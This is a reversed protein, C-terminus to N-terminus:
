RNALNALNASLVAPRGAPTYPAVMTAILALAIWWITTGFYNFRIMDMFNSVTFHDLLLLWLMALLTVSWFGRRPLRQWVALSQLLWLFAPLLYLVLAPIGQEAMLTMYTNHSTREVLNEMEGVQVRFQEDYKDFNGYGWGFVPRSDIMGLSKVGSLLRGGATNEDDLRELAFAAEHNLVTAGLIVLSVVGVAGLRIFVRPYLMTLGIGVLTGGLWSGRSFSILTCLFAVSIAFIAIARLWLAKSNMGFQFILMSLFLLTSTYVAPNKFTGVVREEMSVAQWQVPLVSPAFWSLIGITAQVILTFFAVPLLRRLDEPTPAILRVLWYMCYPVFVRDYMHMILRLPQDGFLYINAVTWLLSLLMVYEPLGFRVVPRNRTQAWSKVLVLWLTIPIMALHVVRYVTAQFGTVDRAVFPFILLWLMVAVFPYRFFVIAAPALVLLAAIFLPGGEVATIAVMGSIVLGLALVILLALM